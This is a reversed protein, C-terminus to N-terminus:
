SGQEGYVITYTIPYIIQGPIPVRLEPDSHMEVSHVYTM